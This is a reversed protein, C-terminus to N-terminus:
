NVAARHWFDTNTCEHYNLSIELIQAALNLKTFRANGVPFSMFSKSVYKAFRCIDNTM